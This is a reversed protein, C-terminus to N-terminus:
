ATRVPTVHWRAVSLDGEHWGMMWHIRQYEESTPIRWDNHGNYDLFQCYLLAEEYTMLREIPSQPAFELM